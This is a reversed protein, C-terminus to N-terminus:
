KPSSTTSQKKLTLRKRKVGNQVKSIAPVMFAAHQAIGEQQTQFGVLAVAIGHLQEEVAKSDLNTTNL